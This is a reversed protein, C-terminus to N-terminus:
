ITMISGFLYLIDLCKLIHLKSYKVCVDMKGILNDLYQCPCYTTMPVSGKDLCRRFTMMIVEQRSDKIRRQSQYIVMVMEDAREETAMTQLFM